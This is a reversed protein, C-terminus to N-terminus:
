RPIKITFVSGENIKSKVSISGNHRDVIQKAIALGLGYGQIYTKTRSKDARYFRDFLHPIEDKEIGIGEDKIHILVHGDTKESSLSVKSKQPSYKISNDLFIIFLETLTQKNGKIIIDKINNEISIKKAKANVMVRKTAEEAISLLSVDSVILGKEGKQYQTFKILNDSLIQLHDVEELNSVLLKKAETISLNKDRLNVEIETKLSTLPTRLEHSADGIFRNQEDVMQAIPKLTRGALFYGALTSSGLIGLDIVFLFLKLREKAEIILAPDFFPISSRDFLGHEIRSRQIQEVRDLESTLIQYMAVSFCVSILMIILLYWAALKIRASHFM